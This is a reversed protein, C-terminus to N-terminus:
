HGISWVLHNKQNSYHVHAFWVVEYCTKYIIDRIYRHNASWLIEYDYVCGYEMIM